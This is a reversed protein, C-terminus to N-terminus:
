AHASASFMKKLEQRNTADMAEVTHDFGDFLQRYSKDYTSLTHRVVDVMQDLSCWMVHRHYPIMTEYACTESIVLTGALLAPLIRLEEVTSFRNSAHINVLIKSQTLWPYLEEKSYATNVNFCRYSSSLRRLIMDRRPSKSLDVFTTLIDYKLPPSSSPSRPVYPYLLASVYLLKSHFVSETPCQRINHLNPANYHIIWDMDILTDRLHIRCRYPGALPFSQNEPHDRLAITPESDFGIFVPRDVGSHDVPCFLHDPLIHYAMGPPSLGKQLEDRLLTIVYTIWERSLIWQREYPPYLLTSGHFRETIM